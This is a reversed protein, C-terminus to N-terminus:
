FEKTTLETWEASMSMAIQDRARSHLAAEASYERIVDSIRDVIWQPDLIVLKNLEERNGYYIVVGLEHFHELMAKVEDKDIIGAERSLDCVEDFSLHAIQRSKKKLEDCVKMWPMPYEDQIYSEKSHSTSSTACM